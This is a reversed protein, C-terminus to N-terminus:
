LDIIHQILQYRIDSEYMTLKNINSHDTKLLYINGIFPNSNLYPVIVKNFFFPIKSPLYESFSSIIPRRYKPISYILRQFTSNLRKLKNINFSSSLEIIYPSVRKKIFRLLNTHLNTGFHPTGFFVIGKISNITEPHNSIIQKLIIGGMSHCIFINKKDILMNNKTLINAKVLKWYIEESIENLTIARNGNNFIKHSYDVAIMSINENESLLIRPWIFYNNNELKTMTERNLLNSHVNEDNELTSGTMKMFQINSDIIIPSKSDKSIDINWSKFASGLFGHIFIVNIGKKNGMQNIETKRTRYSKFLDNVKGLLFDHENKSNIKLPILGQSLLKIENEDSILTSKSRSIFLLNHFLRLLEFYVRSQPVSSQIEFNETQDNIFRSKINGLVIQLLEKFDQINISIQMFESTVTIYNNLFQVGEGILSWNCTNRSISDKIKNSIIEPLNYSKIAKVLKEKEKRCVDKQPIELSFLYEFKRNVKSLVKIINNENALTYKDFFFKEKNENIKNLDIKYHIVNEPSEPHFLIKFTKDFLRLIHNDIIKSSGKKDKFREITKKFLNFNIQNMREFSTNSLIQNNIEGMIFNIINMAMTYDIWDMRILSELIGINLSNILGNNESNIKNYKNNKEFYNVLISITSESILNEMNSDNTHTSDLINLLTLPIIIENSNYPFTSQLKEFLELKLKCSINKEKSLCLLILDLITKLENLEQEKNGLILENLFNIISLIVDKETEERKLQNNILYGFILILKMFNHGICNTQKKDSFFYFKNEYESDNLNKLFLEYIRNSIVGLYVFKHSPKTLYKYIQRKNSTFLLREKIGLTIEKLIQLGSIEKYLINGLHNISPIKLILLDLIDLLHSKEPQDLTCYKSLAGFLKKQIFNYNNKLLLLENNDFTENFCMKRDVFKKALDDATFNNIIENGFIEWIFILTQEDEYVQNIKPFLLGNYEELYPRPIIAKSLNSGNKYSNENYKNSKSNIKSFKWKRNILQSVCVIKLEKGPIKM